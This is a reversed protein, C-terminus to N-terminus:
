SRRRTALLLTAAGSLAALAGCALPLTADGTRALRDDNKGSGDGDNDDDPGDQPPAPDEPTDPQDPDDPVSPAAGDVPSTAYYRMADDASPADANAATTGSEAGAALPGATTAPSGAIYPSDGIRWGISLWGGDDLWAGAGPSNALLRSDFSLRGEADAALLLAENACFGTVLPKERITVAIAGGEAISVRYSNGIASAGNPLRSDLAVASTQAGDADFALLWLGQEYGGDPVRAGALLSFGRESADGALFGRYDGCDLAVADEPIAIGDSAAAEEADPSGSAALESDLAAASVAAFSLEGQDGYRTLAITGDGLSAMDNADVTSYAAAIGGAGDPALSALAIGSAYHSYYAAVLGRDSAAFVAGHANELTGDARVAGTAADVFLIRESMDSQDLVLAVGGDALPLARLASGAELAPLAPAVVPLADLETGDASVTCLELGDSGVRFFARTGDALEVIDTMLHVGNESSSARYTGARAIAAVDGTDLPIRIEPSFVTEDGNQAIVFQKAPFVIECSSDPGIGDPDFYCSAKISTGDVDLLAQHPVGDIVIRAFDGEETAALRPAVSAEFSLQAMNTVSQGSAPTITFDPLDPADKGSHSVTLAGGTPGCADARVSIGTYGLGASEYFNTSPFTDPTIEVGEALMCGYRGSAAAPSRGPLSTHPEGMDADVLEILQDNVRGGTNTRAFDSGDLTLAAQVRFMRFGSPIPLDGGDGPYSVSQNGVYRDYQLLYYSAFPGEDANSVVVIGGTGGDDGIFAGLDIQATSTGDAAPEVRQLTQGGRSVAIGESNAVVRTVDGNEIWGLLWKSFGNHDGTNNDMIDFTLTGSRGASSGSQAVYSYYDPLGLVHGTEHIATRAADPDDSPLHLTAYKCPSVGDFVAPTEMKSANSWWTTGWQADGGAFHLYIADILGDGNGDFRSFDVSADLADLAELFLLQINDTYYSRAHRACYDFSEGEIRLKGYSSRQYYADLGEYPFVGAEGGDVLSQLAELTDGEPFALAPEDGEAPFSVRLMVVRACGETPMGGQWVSPVANASVGDLANQRAIAQQLLAPDPQDHGLADQFAQREALTGDAEYRALEEAGPQCPSGDAEAARADVAGIAASLLLAAALALATTLARAAARRLPRATETPSATM